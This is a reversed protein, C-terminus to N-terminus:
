DLMQLPECNLNQLQTGLVLFLLQQLHLFLISHICLLMGLLALSCLIVLPLLRNCRASWPQGATTSILSACLICPQKHLEATPAAATGPLLVAYTASAVFCAHKHADRGTTLVYVPATVGEVGRKQM